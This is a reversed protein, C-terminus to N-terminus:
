MCKHRSRLEAELERDIQELEAEYDKAAMKILWEQADVMQWLESAQAASLNRNSALKIRTTVIGTRCLTLLQHALDPDDYEQSRMLFPGM